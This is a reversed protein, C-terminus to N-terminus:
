SRSEPPLWSKIGSEIHQNFDAGTLDITITRPRHRYLRLESAFIPGMVAGIALGVLLWGYWTV